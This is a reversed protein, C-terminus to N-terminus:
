ITLQSNAVNFSWITIKKDTSGSAFMSYDKLNIALKMVFDKHEDYTRILKFDKEVDWLKITNDDSSSLFMPLKLHCVISRIFDQHAEYEKVKEMTNYNYVRIKRDDAGCIIFNKESMFKASRIACNTVEIYQVSSQTIYDYISISGNYLGLLIWNFIPHFDVSKVKGTRAVLKKRLVIKM